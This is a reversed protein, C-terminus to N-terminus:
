PKGSTQLENRRRMHMYPPTAKNPAPLAHPREPILAKNTGKLIIYTSNHYFAWEFFFGM